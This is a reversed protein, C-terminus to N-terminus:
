SSVILWASFVRLNIGNQVNKQKKFVFSTKIKMLGTHWPIEELNLYYNVAYNRIKISHNWCKLM